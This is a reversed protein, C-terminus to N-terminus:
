ARPQEPEVHFVRSAGNDALVAVRLPHCVRAALDRSLEEFVELEEGAHLGGLKGAIIPLDGGVPDWGPVVTSCLYKERSLLVPKIAEFCAVCYIYETVFAGRESM